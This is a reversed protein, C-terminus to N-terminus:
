SYLAAILAVALLQERVMSFGGDQQPESVRSEIAILVGSVAKKWILLSPGLESFPM